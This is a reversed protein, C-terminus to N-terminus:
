TKELCNLSKPPEVSRHKRQLATKLHFTKHHFLRSTGEFKNRTNGFKLSISKSFVCDLEKAEFSKHIYNMIIKKQEFRGWNNLLHKTKILM